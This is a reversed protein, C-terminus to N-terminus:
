GMGAAGTIGIIAGMVVGLIISIVIAIIIVLATYGVAKEKPCKMLVPLGLYLVYIGYIAAVIILIALLPVVNLVGALWAPTQSFAIVKLAQMFNKEGEFTPALADVILAAVYVIILGVVLQMISQILASGLGISRTGMFPITLGFIMLGVFKAIAGIAALPLIYSTYLAGVTTTEAAIVPWEEAPKTVINTARSVINM